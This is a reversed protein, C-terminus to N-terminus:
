HHYKKQSPKNQSLNAYSTHYRLDVHRGCLTARTIHKNQLSYEDDDVTSKRDTLVYRSGKSM